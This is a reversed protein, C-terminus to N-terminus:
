FHRFNTHIKPPIYQEHSSNYGQIHHHRAEKYCKKFNHVELFAYRLCTDAMITAKLAQEPAARGTIM